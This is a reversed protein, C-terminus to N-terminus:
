TIAFQLKWINETKIRWYGLIITNNTIVRLKNTWEIGSLIALADNATSQDKFLCKCLEESSILSIYLKEAASKRIKPYPHYLLILLEVIICKRLEPYCLM